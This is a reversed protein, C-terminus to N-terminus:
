PCEQMRVLNTHWDRLAIADALANHPNVSVPQGTPTVLMTMQFPFYISTEYTPGALLSLFHIADAFYDCIIEPSDFRAIYAHFGRRFDAAPIPNTQLKPLVHESVWPDVCQTMEVAAYWSTYIHGPVLALSILEGGHGNFETDLYLKM